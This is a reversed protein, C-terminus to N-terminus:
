PTGDLVDRLQRWADREAKVHFRHGNKGSSLLSPKLWDEQQLVHLYFNLVSKDYCQFKRLVDRCPIYKKESFYECILKHLRYNKSYRSNVAITENILRRAIFDSIHISHNRNIQRKQDRLFIVVANIKLVMSMYMEHIKTASDKVFICEKLEELCKGSLINFIKIDDVRGDLSYEMHHEVSQAKEIAVNEVFNVDNNENDCEGTGDNCIFVFRNLVGLRSLPKMSFLKQLREKDVMSFLNIASKESFRSPYVPIAKRIQYYFKTMETNRNILCDLFTRQGTQYSEMISIFEEQRLQEMIWKKSVTRASGAGSLGHEKKYGHNVVVFAFNAFYNVGNRKVVIKKEAARAVKFLSLALRQPEMKALLFIARPENLMRGMSFISEDVELRTRLVLRDLHASQPRMEIEGFIHTICSLGHGSM